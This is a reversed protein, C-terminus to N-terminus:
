KGPSILIFASYLALEAETLKLDAINEAFQFAQTILKSETLDAIKVFLTLSFFVSNLKHSLSGQSLFADMPMLGNGFVVQKTTM